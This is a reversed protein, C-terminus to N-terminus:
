FIELIRYVLALDALFVRFWGLLFLRSKSSICLIKASLQTRCSQQLVFKFNINFIEHCFTKTHANVEVKQIFM